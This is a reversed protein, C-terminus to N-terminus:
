RRRRLHRAGLGWDGSVVIDEPDIDFSSVKQSAMRKPMVDRLGRGKRSIPNSITTVGAACMVDPAISDGRCGERRQM